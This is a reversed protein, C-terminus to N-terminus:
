GRLFGRQTQMLIWAVGPFLAFTLILQFALPLVPNAHWGVVSVAIWTICSAMAAVLGFGMWMLYFSKGLFFRRQHLVTWYVVLLILANLGLAVGTLVDQLVGVAFVSVLPMLDPRHIAWYYIGMLAFMPAVPGYGDLPIPVMSLIVLMVTVSVPILARWLGDIRQWIMPAM